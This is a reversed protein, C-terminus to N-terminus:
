KTTSMGQRTKSWVNLPTADTSYGPEAPYVNTDALHFQESFTQFALCDSNETDM